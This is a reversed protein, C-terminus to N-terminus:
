GGPNTPDFTYCGLSWSQFEASWECRFVLGPAPTLACGIWDVKGVSGTRVDGPYEWRECGARVIEDNGCGNPHLETGYGPAFKTDPCADNPIKVGDGDPDLEHKLAAVDAELKAITAATAKLQAEKEEVIRKQAEVEFDKLARYGDYEKQLEARRPVLAADAARKMILGMGANECVIVLLGLFTILVRRTTNSM